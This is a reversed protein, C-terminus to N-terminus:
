KVIKFAVRESTIIETDEYKGDLSLLMGTLILQMTYDGPPLPEVGDIKQSSYVTLKKGVFGGGPITVYDHEGPTRRSGGDFYRRLNVIKGDGDRIIIRGPQKLLGNFFPNFMRHSENASAFTFSVELPSDVKFESGAVTLKASLGQYTKPMEEAAPQQTEPGVPQGRNVSPEAVTNAESAIDIKPFTVMINGIAEGRFGAESELVSWQKRLSAIKSKAIEVRGAQLDAEISDLAMRGPAKVASMFWLGEIDRRLSEAVSWCLSTVLCAILITLITRKM